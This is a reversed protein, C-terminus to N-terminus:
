NAYKKEFLQHIESTILGFGKHTRQSFKANYEEFVMVLFKEMSEENPFQEKRKTKRKLQKNFGEILNTTYISSRIADPYKFFTLLNHNSEISDIIKPYKENWKEKFSEIQTLAKEYDAASYVLKFDDIIEQRDKIRVKSMINRNVHVLCRQIDAKPYNNTIIDEVGTLGDTVFLLVQELGRSKFDKLLEDWIFASETPAISYGIVEKSGDIKVGIAIHIAEKSVTDRRLSVYTADLYIISYQRELPRTKFKDINVIVQDTINSITSKSYKKDYLADVITAIEENTLGTQFLKMIISETTTDRREYKPVLPSEFDGNRDRPITLHLTGHSTNFDRDYYGNRSNGSNFGSRDYKEYKLFATLEMKLLENIAKELEARFFESITKEFDQNNMLCNLINTTFYNM